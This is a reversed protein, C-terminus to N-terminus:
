REEWRERFTKAAVRPAERHRTWPALLGARVAADQFRRALGVAFRFRRPDATMWRFVRFAIRELLPRRGDRVAEGRLRLLHGHLDIKVPCIDTCAGCLSSAYPLEHDAIRGRMLPTLLSGIPGPYTWGYAHGGVTRYVPCVNMCAGCKICRLIERNEPDELKASRGNDLLVIHLESLAGSLITVYSTARQGTASGTLLPLFTALDTMKPILKDIGVLAVHVPPTTTTYRINGENEVIVLSGTDCVLFNAGSIGLDADLLRGRLHDRAVLSLWRALEDRDAPPTADGPLVDHDGFIDRIEETSRHLAPATIHSPPEGALQVIYEGLDTELPTFGRATFAANLEVEETAMSKAKLIRSAGKKRALEVIIRRAAAADAARHVHAGRRRASEIFEDLYRAHNALVEDKAAAARDRLEEWDDREAVMTERHHLSTNTAKLVNRRLIPDGVAKRMRKALDKSM